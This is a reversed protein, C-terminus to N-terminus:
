LPEQKRGEAASAVDAAVWRHFQRRMGDWFPCYFRERYVPSRAAKQVAESVRNDEPAVEGHFGFVKEHRAANEPTVAASPLLYMRRDVTREAGDPLNIAIEIYGPAISLSMAPYLDVYAAQEPVRGDAGLHPEAPDIEGYTESFASYDFGLGILYGDVVERYTKEGEATVRPHASSERYARHVFNEHLVNPGDIDFFIKWNCHTVARPVIPQGSRDRVVAVDGLDYQSFQRAIPAVYDEFPAPEPSLNVFVTHLYCECRVEVLDTAPAGDPLQERRPTGDWFPAARLRGELDYVWGHYPTVIESLGAAPEIVALCGDYPVVNHFVRLTGDLGRVALLPMGCLEFPLADGPGPVDFDFLVCVWHRSFIREREAEYFVQSYYSSAPLTQATAIPENIRALQEASLVSEPPEM